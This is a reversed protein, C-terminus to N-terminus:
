ILVWINQVKFSFSNTIRQDKIQHIPQRESHKDNQRRQQNNWEKEESYVGFNKDKELDTLFSTKKEAHANYKAAHLHFITRITTEFYSYVNTKPTGGVASVLFLFAGLDKDSSINESLSGFAIKM